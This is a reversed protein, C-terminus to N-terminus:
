GLSALDATAAAATAALAATCWSTEESVDGLREEPGLPCRDDLAQAEAEERLRRDPRILGGEAPREELREAHGFFGQEAQVFLVSLVDSGPVRRKPHSHTCARRSTAQERLM